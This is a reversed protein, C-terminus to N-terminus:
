RFHDLSDFPPVGPTGKGTELYSKLSALFYNWNGRTQEYVEDKKVFEGHTFIVRTGNHFPELQWTISTGAWQAVSGFRYIWHVKKDRELEAVEFRLVFDGWEGFRFEALSGVEPTANLDNTWWHGIENPQTLAAWVRQPPAEITLEKVITIM